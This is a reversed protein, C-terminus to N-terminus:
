NREGCRVERPTPPLSSDVVIENNGVKKDPLGLLLAFTSRSPLFHDM